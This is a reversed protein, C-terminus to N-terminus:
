VIWSIDVNRWYRVWKLLCCVMGNLVPIGASNRQGSTMPVREERSQANITELSKNVHELFEKGRIKKIKILVELLDNLEASAYVGREISLNAPNGWRLVFLGEVCDEAYCFNNKKAAVAYNKAERADNSAAWLHTLSSVM